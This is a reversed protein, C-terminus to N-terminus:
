GYCFQGYGVSSITHVSPQVVFLAQPLKFSEEHPAAERRHRRSLVQRRGRTPFEFNVLSALLFLFHFSFSFHFACIQSSDPLYPRKKRNDDIRRPLSLFEHTLSIERERAMISYRAFGPLRIRAARCISVRFKSFLAVGLRMLLPLWSLM